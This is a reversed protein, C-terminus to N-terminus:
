SVEIRDMSSRPWKAGVKVSASEFIINKLRLLFSARLNLFKRITEGGSRSNKLM